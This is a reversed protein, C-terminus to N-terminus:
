QEKIILEIICAGSDGGEGPSVFVMVNTGASTSQAPSAEYLGLQKLDAHGVSFFSEVDINTGVTVSAGEGNFVEMVAMRVSFVVEDESATHIILPSADGFGVSVSIGGGGDIGPPGQPGPDGKVGQQIAVSVVREEKLAQVSVSSGGGSVEAAVTNTTSVVPANIM